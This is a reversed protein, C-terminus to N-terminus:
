RTSQGRDRHHRRGHGDPDCRTGEGRGTAKTLDIVTANAPIPISGGVAKILGGEILIVQNSSAAGSEVDILRGARIAITQAQVSASTSALILVVLLTRFM